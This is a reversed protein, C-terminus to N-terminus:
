WLMWMCISSMIVVTFGIGTNDKTIRGTTQPAHFRVGVFRHPFGTFHSHHHPRPSCHIIFEM